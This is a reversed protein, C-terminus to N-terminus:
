TKIGGFLGQLPKPNGLITLFIDKGGFKGFRKGDPVSYM